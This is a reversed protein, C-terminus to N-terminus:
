HPEGCDVILFALSSNRGLGSPGPENKFKRLAFLLSASLCNAIATCLLRSPNPGSDTGLPPQEDTVLVPIAPNDLRAEFRYGDQQVLDVSVQGQCM